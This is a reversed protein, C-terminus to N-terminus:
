PAQQLGIVHPAVLQPVILSPQPPVSSHPAQETPAQVFLTQLQVGVVQWAAPLSQSVIGSPQPLSRAQPVQSAGFVQPPPPVGFTQPQVGSQAPLAQPPSPQPPDHPVHLAPYVHLAPAQTMGTPCAQVLPECHADPTQRVLQQLPAQLEGRVQVPEPAQTQGLVRGVLQPLV